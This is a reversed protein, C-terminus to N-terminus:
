KEQERERKKSCDILAIDGKVLSSIDIDDKRKFIKRVTSVAKWGSTPRLKKLLCIDKEQKLGLSLHRIKSTDLQGSPSFFHDTQTNTKFKSNEKVKTDLKFVTQCMSYFRSDERGRYDEVNGSSGFVCSSNLTAPFITPYTLNLEVEGGCGSCKKAEEQIM